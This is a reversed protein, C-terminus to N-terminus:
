FCNKIYQFSTSKLCFVWFKADQQFEVIRQLQQCFVTVSQQFKINKPFFDVLVSPMDNFILMKSFFEVLFLPM